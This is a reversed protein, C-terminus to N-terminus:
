IHIGLEQKSTREFDPEGSWEHEWYRNIQETFLESITESETFM